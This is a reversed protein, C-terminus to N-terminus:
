CNQKRRLLRTFYILTLALMIWLGNGVPIPDGPNGPDDGGTEEDDGDDDYEILRLAQPQNTAFPTYVKSSYRSGSPSFTNSSRLSPMASSGSYLGSTPAAQGIGLTSSQYMSNTRHRSTFAADSIVSQAHLSFASILLALILYVTKKM